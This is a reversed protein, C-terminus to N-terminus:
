AFRPSLDHPADRSAGGEVAAVLHRERPRAAALARPDGVPKEVLRLAIPLPRKPPGRPVPDEMGDHLPELTM